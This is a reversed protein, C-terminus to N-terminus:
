VLIRVGGFTIPNGDRDVLYSTPTPASLLPVLFLKGAETIVWNGGHAAAIFRLEDRITYDNAPYDISYSANLATRPDIEVDMIRAFEEVAATVPIPFEIVQDPVWVTEAKRMADFAEVTWLNGDRTRRNAFFVGKPLWESETDDNKLRVYRRIVAGRPIEFAFLSLKIQSVTANGIGFSEYLSSTVSHSVEEEPGYWVGNVDFGFEQVTGPVGWLESWTASTTQAM